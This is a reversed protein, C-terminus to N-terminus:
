PPTTCYIYGGGGPVLFHENSMLNFLDHQQAGDESETETLSERLPVSKVTLFFDTLWRWDEATSPPNTRSKIKLDGTYRFAIYCEDNGSIKASDVKIYELSNPVLFVAHCDHRSIRELERGNAAATVVMLVYIGLAFSVTSKM